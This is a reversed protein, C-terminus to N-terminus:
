QTMIFLSNQDDYYISNVIRPSFHEKYGKSKLHSKILFYDFTNLINKREYRKM